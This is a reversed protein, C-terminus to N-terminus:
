GPPAYPPYVPVALHIDAAELERMLTARLKRMVGANEGATTRVTVRVAPGTTGLNEVGPVAIPEILLPAIDPDASVDGAVRTILEVADDLTTPDALVLDITGQSWDRSKNGIRLITGNPVTWVTGTGDRLTTARLTISEVIGIAPGVDIEDGVGCQDELLIFFGAICDKVLQQAGLGIAIGAIGAGAILPGLNISFIGLIALVAFAWVVASVTTRAVASLTRARIEERQDDGASVGLKELYSGAVKDKRIVQSIFATVLKRLYRNLLAAIVVVVIATLIPTVIGDVLRALFRSNTANWTVECLWSPNEGCVDVVEDGAAQAPWPAVGAVGLM